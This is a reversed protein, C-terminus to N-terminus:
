IGYLCIPEVGACDCAGALDEMVDGYCLAMHHEIRRDLITSVVEDIDADFHFNAYNGRVQRGYPTVEGSAIFMLYAGDEETLRAVTARGPKLEFELTTTGGMSHKELRPAEPSEALSPAAAGCHFFLASNTEEDLAIIDAFFSPAGSLAYEMIMTILNNVDTECGIIFGEDALKAMALCPNLEMADKLEPLCRISAFDLSYQDKIRRLALYLRSSKLVDENTAEGRRGISLVPVTREADNNTVAEYTSLFEGLEIQLISAGFVKRLLFANYSSVLYSTYALNGGIMGINATRLVKLARIQSIMHTFDDVAKRDSPLGLVLAADRSMKGLARANSLAGALSNLRLGGGPTFPEPTAWIITPAFITEAITLAPGDLNFCGSQLVLLDIDHAKLADASRKAAAPLTVMVDRVQLAPGSLMVPPAEIVETEPISALARVSERAVRGAFELDFYPNSAILVFGIKVTREVAITREDVPFM